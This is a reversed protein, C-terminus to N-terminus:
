SEIFAAHISTLYTKVSEIFSKKLSQRPMGQYHGSVQATEVSFRMSLLM